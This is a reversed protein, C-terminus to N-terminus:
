PLPVSLCLYFGDIYIQFANLMEPAFSLLGAGLGLGAVLLYSTMVAYEVAAQGSDDLLRILLSQYISNFM